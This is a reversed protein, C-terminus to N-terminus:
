RACTTGAGLAEVTDTPELGTLSGWLTQGQPDETAGVVFAPQPPADPWEQTYLNLEAGFTQQLDAVTSGLRIGTDSRVGAPPEGLETGLGWATLGDDDFYAAFGGWSYFDGAKPPEPQCFYETPGDDPPGLWETLQEVAEDTSTGFALGGVRDASLVVDAATGSAPASPGPAAEDVRPPLSAASTPFADAGDVLRLMALMAVAVIAVGALMSGATKM